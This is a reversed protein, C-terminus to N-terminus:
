PLKKRRMMSWKNLMDQMGDLFWVYMQELSCSYTVYWAFAEIASEL